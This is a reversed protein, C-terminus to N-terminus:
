DGRKWGFGAARLREAAVTLTHARGLLAEELVQAAMTAVPYDEGHQIYALRRLVRLAEESIRIHLDPKPLSMRVVPL